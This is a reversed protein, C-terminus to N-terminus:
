MFPAISKLGYMQLKSMFDNILTQLYIKSGDRSCMKRIRDGHKGDIDNIMVLSFSGLNFQLFTGTGYLNGFVVRV